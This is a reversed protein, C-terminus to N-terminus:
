KIKVAIKLYCFEEIINKNIFIFILLNDKYGAKFSVSMIQIKPKEHSRSKEPAQIEKILTLIFMSFKKYSM